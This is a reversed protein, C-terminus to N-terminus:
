AIYFEFFILMTVESYNRLFGRIHIFHSPFQPSARGTRTGAQKHFVSHFSRAGRESANRSWNM